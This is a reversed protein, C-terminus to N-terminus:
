CATVLFAGVIYNLLLRNQQEFGGQSQLLRGGVLVFMKTEAWADAVAVGVVVAINTRAAVLTHRCAHAILLAAAEATGCNGACCLSVRAPTDVSM